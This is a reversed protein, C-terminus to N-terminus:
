SAPWSCCLGLCCSVVCCYAINSINHQTGHKRYSVRVLIATYSLIETNFRWNCLCLLFFHKFAIFSFPTECSRLVGQVRYQVKYQQVKSLNFCGFQMRCRRQLMQRPPLAPWVIIPIQVITQHYLGFHLICSMWVEFCLIYHDIILYYKMEMHILNLIQESSHM